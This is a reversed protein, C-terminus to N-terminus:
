MRGHNDIWLPRATHDAKLELGGLDKVPRTKYALLKTLFESGTIQRPGDDDSDDGDEGGDEDDDFMGRREAPEARSSGGEAQRKRKGTVSPNEKLVVLRSPKPPPNYKNRNRARRTEEFDSDGSGAMVEDDSVNGDIFGDDESSSM